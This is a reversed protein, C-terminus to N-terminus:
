TSEQASMDQHFISTGVDFLSSLHNHIGTSTPLPKPCMLQAVDHINRLSLLCRALPFDAHLHLISYKTDCKQVKSWIKPINTM